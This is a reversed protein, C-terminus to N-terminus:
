ASQDAKDPHLAGLLMIVLLVGPILVWASIEAVFSAPILLSLTNFGAHLVIVERLRQTHEYVFCLLMSLPVVALLQVMNGHLTAFVMTSFFAAAMPPWHRRLLPYFLGRMLAEEGVPAIVIVMLVMLIAPMAVQAEIATEYGPSGIRGLFQVAAVQGVLWSIPVTLVAFTVLKARSLNTTRADQVDTVLKKLLERRFLLVATFIGLGAAISAAIPDVLVAVVAALAAYLFFGALIWGVTILVDRRIPKIM